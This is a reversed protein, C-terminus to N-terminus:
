EINHAIDNSSIATGLEQIKKENANIKIGRHKVKETITDWLIFRQCLADVEALRQDISKVQQQPTMNSASISNDTNDQNTATPSQFQPISSTSPGISISESNATADALPQAQSVAMNNEQITQSIIVPEESSDDSFIRSVYSSANPTPPSPPMTDAPSPFITKLADTQARTQVGLSTNNDSKNKKSANKGTM